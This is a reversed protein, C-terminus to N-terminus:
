RFLPALALILRLNGDASLAAGIMAPGFFTESLAGVAIDAKNSASGNENWLVGEDIWGGFYIGGGVFTPLQGVKRLYGATGTVYDFARLEAPYYASLRFLGGVLFEYPPLVRTGFRTGGWFTGFLRDRSTLPHVIAATLEGLTSTLDSSCV